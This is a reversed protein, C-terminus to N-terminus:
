SEGGELASPTQGGESKSKLIFLLKQLNSQLTAVLGYSPASIVGLVQVFLANKGPLKSLTTLSDKDQFSGEVIGVKMQPVEFEEAFKALVFLPSIPDAGGETTVLATQGVLVSDELVDKPLGAASGALKFLTNKVVTMTAGVEKLRKKLEQQASVNLGSFDVLITSIAGELTKALNEVFINKEAKKM